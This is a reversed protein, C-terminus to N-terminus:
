ILSIDEMMGGAAYAIPGKTHLGLLIYYYRTILKLLYICQTRWIRYEISILRDINIRKLFSRNLNETNSHVIHTFARLHILAYTGLTTRITVRTSESEYPTGYSRFFPISSERSNNITLFAIFFFVSLFIM